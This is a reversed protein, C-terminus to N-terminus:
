PYLGTPHFPSGRVDDIGLQGATDKDQYFAQIVDGTRPAQKLEILVDSTETWGWKDDDPEYVQGNWVVRLTGAVFRTPTEFVKNVGDVAGTLAKIVSEHRM